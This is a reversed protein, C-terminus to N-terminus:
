EARKMAHRIARVEDETYGHQAAITAEAQGKWILKKVQAVTATKM